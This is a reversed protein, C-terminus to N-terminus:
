VINRFFHSTKSWIHAMKKNNQFCLFSIENYYSIVNNQEKKGHTISFILIQFRIHPIPINRKPIITKSCVISSIPFFVKFLIKFLLVFVRTPLIMVPIMCVHIKWLLVITVIIVRPKTPAPIIPSEFASPTTIPAFTPVVSVGHSIESRQNLSLMSAAASGIIPIPASEIIIKEPDGLITEIPFNRTPNQNRKRPSPYIFSLTSSIAWATENSCYACREIQPYTSIPVIMVVIMCVLVPAVTIMRVARLEPRIEISIARPSTIPAFMPDAIVVVSTPKRELVLVCDVFLCTANPWKVNLMVVITITVNAYWGNLCSSKKMKPSLVSGVIVRARKWVKYLTISAKIQAGSKHGNIRKRLQSKGRLCVSRWRAISCTLVVRGSSIMVASWLSVIESM